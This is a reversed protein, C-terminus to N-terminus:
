ESVANLGCFCFCHSGLAGKRGGRGQEGTGKERKGERGCPRGIDSLRVESKCDEVEAQWSSPCSPSGARETQGKSELIEKRSKDSM